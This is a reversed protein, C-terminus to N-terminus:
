NSTGANKDQGSTGQANKDKDQASPSQPSASPPTTQGSAAPKSSSVPQTTSPAPDAPPTQQAAVPYSLFIALVVAFFLCAVFKIPLCNERSFFGVVVSPPLTMRATLM